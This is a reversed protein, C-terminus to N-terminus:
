DAVPVTASVRQDIVEAVKPDATVFLEFRADGRPRRHEILPVHVDANRTGHALTVVGQQPEYDQGAVATGDVTGYILVVAQEAPRSLEIRFIIGAAGPTAPDVSVRVPVRRGAREAEPTAAVKLVAAEGAEAEVPAVTAATVAATTVEATAIKATGVEAAAARPVTVLAPAAEAVAVAAVRIESAAIEGIGAEAGREVAAAVRDPAAAIRARKVVAPPAAPAVATTAIKAPAVEAASDTAPAVEAVATQARKVEVREVEAPTVDSATATAAEGKPGEAPGPAHPRQPLIRVSQSRSPQRTVPERRERNLIRGAGIRLIEGGSVIQHVGDIWALLQGAITEGQVLIRVEAVDQIPMQRMGGITRRVIVTNRTADVISGEIVAGNTLVLADARAVGPAGTCTVMLIALAWAGFRSRCGHAGVRRANVTNPRNSM